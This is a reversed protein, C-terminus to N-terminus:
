GGAHSVIISRLAAPRPLFEKLVRTWDEKFLHKYPFFYEIINWYRFLALIRIGDDEAPVFKYSAERSFNPNGEEAPGVYYNSDANRHRYINNLKKVLEESFLNRDNLWKLDPQSHFSSDNIPPVAPYKNEDGLTNIWGFLLEDRKKKNGARLMPPLVNFLCSDFNDLGKAVVPHYYKLFGWTRGLLFLNEIQQESLPNDVKVGTSTLEARLNLTQSFMVQGICFAPLFFCIVIVTNRM